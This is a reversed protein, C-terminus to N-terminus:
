RKVSAVLSQLGDRVRARFCLWPLSIAVHPVECCPSLDYTFPPNFYVSNSRSPQVLCFIFAGRCEDGIDPYISPAVPLVGSVSSLEPECQRVVSTKQSKVIVPPFTFWGSGRRSGISAGRDNQAKKEKRPPLNGKSKQKKNQKTRSKVKRSPEPAAKSRYSSLSSPHNPQHRKTREPFAAIVLSAM